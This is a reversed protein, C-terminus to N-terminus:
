VSPKSVASKFSAFANNSSNAHSTAGTSEPALAVLVADQFVCIVCPKVSGNLYSYRHVQGSKTLGTVFVIARGHDFGTWEAAIDLERFLHQTVQHSLTLVLLLGKTTRSKSWRQRDHTVVLNFCEVPFFAAFVRHAHGGLVFPESGVRHLLQAEMRVQNVKRDPVMDHETGSLPDVDKGTFMLLRHCVQDSLCGQGKLLGCGM